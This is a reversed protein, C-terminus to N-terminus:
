LILLESTELYSKVRDDRKAAGLAMTMAVAGDIRGTAKRKEFKRNGVPDPVLVASAINWTLVKNPIVRLKEALILEEMTEISKPMWISNGAAGGTFGQGHSVLRVAEPSRDDLEKQLYDIRWPDFAIAQINFDKSLEIIKESVFSYDVTNGPTACLLNEREWVDYPVKDVKARERLTGKPTWFWAAVATLGLEPADPWVLVLATLDKKGSLDLGGYCPLGKLDALKMDPAQVAEWKERPIAPNAADVWVCFNLRAVISQKSPMGKAEAVQERLYKYPISVGLNPNAKPWCGEDTMWDDGDDLACVYAFWTDNEELGQLMRTSYEHHQYCVSQRDHGSNTIEIILSQKRGKTGARLKDVVTADAQEHVEDIIACHVRPGDLGRKDASIPRFFSHTTEVALNNRHQKIKKTLMPSASTMKLADNFLIRAQDLKTAAAYVEASAENDAYLMYLGLGAVTPSKGSGKATEIYATRFRRFGDANKWGFLSGVIFKQWLELKFPKGAHDGDTFRLVQEFFRVVRQAAAADWYLGREGGTKLDDLHRKCALRVWPGALIRGDLVQEAYDLVPCFIEEANM